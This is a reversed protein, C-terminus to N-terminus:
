VNQDERIKGLDMEYNVLETLNYQELYHLNERTKEDKSAYWLRGLKNVFKVTDERKM